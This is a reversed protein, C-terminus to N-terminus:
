FLFALIFSLVINAICTKIITYEPTGTNNNLKNTAVLEEVM